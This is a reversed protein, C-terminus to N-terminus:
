VARQIARGEFSGIRHRCPGGEEGRGERGEGGLPPVLRGEPDVRGAHEVPDGGQEVPRADLVHVVLDVAAEVALHDEALRELLRGPRDGELPEADVGAPPRRAAVPREIGLRAGPRLQDGVERGEGVPRDADLDLERIILPPVGPHDEPDVARPDAGVGEGAVLDRELGGSEQHQAAMAPVPLRDTSDGTRHRDAAPDRELGPHGAPFQLDADVAPDHRGVHVVLMREAGAADAQPGPLPGRAESVQPDLGAGRGAGQREIALRPGVGALPGAPHPGREAPARGVAPEGDFGAGWEGADLGLPQGEDAALPFDPELVPPQIAPPHVQDLAVGVFTVEPGAGLRRRRDGDGEFGAVPRSDQGFPHDLDPAIGPGAMLEGQGRGPRVLNAPERHLELPGARHDQAM